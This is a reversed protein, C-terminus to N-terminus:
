NSLGVDTFTESDFILFIWLDNEPDAPCACREAGGGSSTLRGDGRQMTM